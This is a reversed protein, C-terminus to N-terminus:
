GPRSATTRSGPRSATGFITRGAFSCIRFASQTRHTAHQYPRRFGHRSLITRTGVPVRNGGGPGAFVLANSDPDPPLQRRIAEVVLPALPLERIGADSKPRPKFGSGYRGAQHPHGGGAPGPDGSGPPGSARAPRRVGRLPARDRAPVACPGVLVLSLPSYGAPKRRPSPAASPRPSCRTPIWGVSPPPSKASRTPRSPAKMRPLSCSAFCFRAAPWRARM